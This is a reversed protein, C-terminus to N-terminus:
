RAGQEAPPSKARIFIAIVMSAFLATVVTGIAGSLAQMMPTQSAATNALAAQIVEESLGKERLMQEQIGRLEAFYGPFLVTTFLLSSLVIFPAAVLAMLTAATIQASYGRGQDRTKRLGWVLVGIEIAIVMWFMNLLAPDKYWGTVGMLLTWLGTLVGLLAGATVIPKM